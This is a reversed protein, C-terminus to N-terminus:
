RLRAGRRHRRPARPQAARHDGQRRHRPQGRRDPHRRVRSRLRRARPATTSARPRRSRTCRPMGGTTTAGAATGGRVAITPRTQLSHICPVANARALDFAVARYRGHLEVPSVAPESHPRGRLRAPDAPRWRGRRPLGFAYTVAAAGAGLLLQRLGGYWWPRVTVQAVVAGCLFLASWPSCSPRSCAPPASCTPCCRSSPASPSPRSRPCRRSGAALGPRGPRRRAGRPRAGRRREGRRRPDAPGGRAALEPDLGKEVYMQALEAPEAAPNRMIERREKDIERQPPRPSAPWRSTSGRRWRSRAPRSAPSRRRAGGGLHRRPRPHRRRRRRDARLQLGPRGHRRLRRAAALRRHRRPARARDGADPSLADATM